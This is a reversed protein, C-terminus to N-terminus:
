MSGWHVCSVGSSKEPVVAGHVGPLEGIKGMPPLTAVNRLRM